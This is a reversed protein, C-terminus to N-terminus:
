GLVHKRTGDDKLGRRANRLEGVVYFHAMHTAGGARDSDPVDSANIEALRGDALVLEYRVGVQLHQDRSLEFYGHWQKRGGAKAHFGLHGEVDDLVVTEGELVKAHRFHEMRDM